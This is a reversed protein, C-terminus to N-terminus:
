FSRKAPLKPVAAPLWQPDPGRRHTAPTRAKRMMCSPRLRDTAPGDLRSWRARSLSASGHWDAEDDLIIVREGRLVGLEQNRRELVGEPSQAQDVALVRRGHHRAGDDLKGLLAL